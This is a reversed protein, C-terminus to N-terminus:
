VMRDKGVRAILHRLWSNQLCVRELYTAHCAVICYHGFHFRSICSHQAKSGLPTFVVSIFCYHVLVCVAGVCASSWMVVVVCAINCTHLRSADAVTVCSNVGREKAMLSSKKRCRWHLAKETSISGILWGKSTEELTRGQCGQTAKLQM